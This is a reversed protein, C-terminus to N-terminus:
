TMTIEKRTCIDFFAISNDFDNRQWLMKIVNHKRGFADKPTKVEYKFFSNKGYFLADDGPVILIMNGYEANADNVIIAGDGSITYTTIPIEHVFSDNSQEFTVEELKDTSDLMSRFYHLYWEDAKTRYIGDICDQLEVGEVNIDCDLGNSLLMMKNTSGVTYFVARYREIESEEENVHIHTVFKTIKSIGTELKYKEADNDSFHVIVYKEDLKDHIINPVGADHIVYELSYKGRYTIFKQTYLDYLAGSVAFSGGNMGYTELFHMNMKARTVFIFRAEGKYSFVYYNPNKPAKLKLVLNSADVIIWNGDIKGKLFFKGEREILQFMNGIGKM